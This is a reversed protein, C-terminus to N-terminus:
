HEVDGAMAVDAFGRTTVTEDFESSPLM